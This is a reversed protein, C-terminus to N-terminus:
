KISLLRIGQGVLQGVVAGFGVQQSISAWNGEAKVGPPLTSIARITEELVEVIIPAAVRSVNRLALKRVVSEASQRGPMFISGVIASYQSVSPCYQRYAATLQRVAFECELRRSASINQVDFNTCALIPKAYFTAENLASSLAAATPHKCSGDGRLFFSGFVQRHFVMYGEVQYVLGTRQIEMTYPTEYGSQKGHEIALMIFDDRDFIPEGNFSIITDGKVAPVPSGFPTRAAQQHTVLVGREFPGNSDTTELGSATPILGHKGATHTWARLSIELSRELANAWSLLTVTEQDECTPRIIDCISHDEVFLYHQKAGSPIYGMQVSQSTSGCSSLWAKRTLKGTSTELCYTVGSGGTQFTPLGEWAESFFPYMMLRSIAQSPLAAVLYLAGEDGINVNHDVCGGAPLYTSSVAETAVDVVTLVSGYPLASCSSIKINTETTKAVAANTNETFNLCVVILIFASKLCFKWM